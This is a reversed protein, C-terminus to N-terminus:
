AGGRRPGLLVKIAYRTGCTTVAELAVGIAYDGTGETCGVVQGTYLTGSDGSPGVLDGPVIATGATTSWTSDHWGYVTALGGVQVAVNRQAATDIAPMGAACVGIVGTVEATACMEAYGDSDIAVLGGETFAATTSTTQMNITEVTGGKSGITETHTM